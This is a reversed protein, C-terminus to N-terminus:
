EPATTISLIARFRELFRATAAGITLSDVLRPDAPGRAIAAEIAAALSADDDLRFYTAASGLHERHPPIDSAVAPVGSAVAEIATLGFGEFRSPAVVVTARRYAERVAADSQREAALELRVGLSAAMARFSAELEGRGILEVIPRPVLTAAARLVADQNKFPVLRSVTLIRVPPENRWEGPQFRASDFCYPVLEPTVGFRRNVDEVTLSSPSWVATARRAVYRLRSYFGPRKPHRGVFRSVRRIRGRWEFILDPKGTGVQWPPLDWLYVVLPCHHRRAFEFAEV